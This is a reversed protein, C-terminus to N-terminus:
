ITRRVLQRHCNLMDVKDVRERLVFAIAAAFGQEAYSKSRLVIGWSVGKEVFVLEASPKATAGRQKEKMTNSRRCM